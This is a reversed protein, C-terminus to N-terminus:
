LTKTLVEDRIPEKHLEHFADKFEYLEKDKSASKAHFVKMGKNDVVYDKEAIM